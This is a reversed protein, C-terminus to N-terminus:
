KKDELWRNWRNDLCLFVICVIIIIIIWIIRFTIVTSYGVNKRHQIFTNIKKNEYFDCRAGDIPSITSDGLKAFLLGKVSKPVVYYSYRLSGVSHGSEYIHESLEIKSCYPENVTDSNLKLKKAHPFKIINSDFQNGLFEIEKSKYKEIDIIDWTYDTEVTIDNGNNVIEEHKTYRETDKEIFMYTGKLEPISVYDVAKLEGYCLANGVNTEIAYEFQEKDNDIKLSKYYLENKESIHGLIAGEIFFGIAIMIFIIVLIFVLESFVLERKTVKFDYEM